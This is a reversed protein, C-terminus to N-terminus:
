QATEVSLVRVPWLAKISDLELRIQVRVRRTLQRLGLLIIRRISPPDIAHLAAADSVVIVDQPNVGRRRLYRLVLRAPGVLVDRKM